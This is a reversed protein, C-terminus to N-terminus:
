RDGGSPLTTAGTSRTGKSRSAEVWAVPFPQPVLSGSSSATNEKSSSPPKLVALIGPAEWEDQFHSFRQSTAKSSDRQKQGPHNRKQNQKRHKMYVWNKGSIMYVTVTKGQKTIGGQIEPTDAPFQIVKVHSFIMFNIKCSLM